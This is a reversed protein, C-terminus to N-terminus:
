LESQVDAPRWGDTTWMMVSADSYGGQTRCGRQDSILSRQAAMATRHESVLGRVSGYVIYQHQSEIMMGSILGRNAM